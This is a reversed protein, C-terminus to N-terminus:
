WGAYSFSQMTPSVDDFTEYYLTQTEHDFGVYYGNWITRFTDDDATFDPHPYDQAYNSCIIFDDKLYSDEAERQDDDMMFYSLANGSGIVYTPDIHFNRGNIKVYSWRHSAEDYSRHGSMTSADVGAQLLLYSYATSFEQCIGTGTTLVRYSSLYDPVVDPRAAEYDYVYNNSFYIYLALAKELDSYDDALSSNLIDEVLSSFEAIRAAAEERPVKYEFSAMGDVVPNSRDYTYDILEVLVPFCKDPFQGMVWSYTHADPCPFQDEGALVADVLAFWTERMTEGFLETMYSSCVKPQFSYHGCPNTTQESFGGSDPMYPETTEQAPEPTYPYVNQNEPVPETAAPREDQIDPAAPSGAVCGAMLSVILALCILISIQKKM